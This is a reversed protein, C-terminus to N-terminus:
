NTGEHPQVWVVTMNAEESHFTIASMDAPSEVEQPGSSNISDVPRQISLVGAVVFRNRRGCRRFSIV